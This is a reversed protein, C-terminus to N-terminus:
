IEFIWLRVYTFVSQVKWLFLGEVWFRLYLFRAFEDVDRCKSIKRGAVIREDTLLPLSNGVKNRAIIKFDYTQDKVLKDVFIYTNAASTTGVTRWVKKTSEKIDVSYEIINTGGDHESPQWVLTFSTDTM